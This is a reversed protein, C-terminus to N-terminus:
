PAVGYTEEGGDTAEQHSSPPTMVTAPASFVALM